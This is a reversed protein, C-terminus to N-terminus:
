PKTIISTLTFTVTHHARDRQEAMRTTKLAQQDKLTRFIEQQVERDALVGAKLKPDHAFASQQSAPLASSDVGALHYVEGVTIAFSYAVTHATSNKNASPKVVADLFGQDTYARQLLGKGIRLAMPSAPDGVKIETTKEQEAHSLPAAAQIDIEAVRYIEGERVTTSADVVFRNGDKRPVTFVPPDTAIDLYGADQSLDAINDRIAKSTEYLDLDQGSLARQVEVLKPALAPSVGQLHIEGLVIQPSSILLTNAAISGDPGVATQMATVKADIGKERLLDTLAAEVQDPLNGSLPMTGHFLPVRAEVLQELEAPQWWTFNAYHVPQSQSAAAATLKFVLADSNVTYSLDTFMGTDAIRQLAAEIEQKSLTGPKLAAIRLLNATDADGAGEIRIQKPTYTQASLPLTCFLCLVLALASLARFFAQM